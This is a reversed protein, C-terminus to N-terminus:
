TIWRSRSGDNGAMDAGVEPRRRCGCAWRPRGALHWWDRHPTMDPRARLTRLRSGSTHGGGLGDAPSSSPMPRCECSGCRCGSGPITAVRRRCGLDLVKSLRPEARSKLSSRVWAAALAQPSGRRPRRQCASDQEVVPGVVPPPEPGGAWPAAGFAHFGGVAV